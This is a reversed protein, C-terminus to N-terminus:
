RGIIWSLEELVLLKLSSMQDLVLLKLSSIQDLVLYRPGRHPQHRHTSLALTNITTPLM